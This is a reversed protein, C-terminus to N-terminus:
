FSSYKRLGELPKSCNRLQRNLGATKFWIIWLLGGLILASASKNVKIPHELAIALYGLVFIIAIVTLIM